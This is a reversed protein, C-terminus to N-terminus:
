LGTRGANNAGLALRASVHHSARSQLTGYLLPNGAANLAKTAASVGGHERVLDLTERFQAETHRPQPM